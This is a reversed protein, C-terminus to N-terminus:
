EARPPWVSGTWAELLGCRCQKCEFGLIDPGYREPGATECDTVEPPLPFMARIGQRNFQVELAEVTGHSKFDLAIGQGRLWAELPRLHECLALRSPDERYDIREDSFPVGSRVADIYKRRYAPGAELEAVRKEIGAQWAAYRQEQEPSRVHAHPPVPKGPLDPLTLVYWVAPACLPALWWVPLGLFATGAIAGVLYLTVAIVQLVRKAM